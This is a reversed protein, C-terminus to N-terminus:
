LQLNGQPKYNSIREQQQMASKNNYITTESPTDGGSYAGLTPDISNLPLYILGKFLQQYSGLGIYNFAGKSDFTEKTDTGKLINWYNNIINDDTIEEFNNNGSLDTDKEFADSLATANLVGFPKYFQENINGQEDVFKPLNYNQYIKNIEDPTNAGSDKIEQRVLELLPLYDVGPAIIGKSYKDMDIPLYVKYISSTDVVINQSSAMDLTKNGMTVNSFDFIGGYVSDSAVKDLTTLGLNKGEKNVVPMRYAQISLADSTGANITLRTEVGMDRQFAVAPNIKSKDEIEKSSEKKSGDANLNEQLSTKFTNTINNRSSILQILLKEVGESTGDSKIKLLSKANEPLVSYIYNLAAYSQEAQSETILENKYLGDISLNSVDNYILNRQSADKLIDIGKLIQNNERTSYGETSNKTSGLNSIINSILDHINKMGISNSVVKVIASNNALEPDHARLNLLDSNTLPYYETNSKIQEPTLLKFDGNSNQCFILGRDNIAVENISENKNALEFANNYEEMNFNAIKIQSLIQMYQSEVSNLNFTGFQQDIKFEQLANTIAMIDSPLGKLKDILKMEDSDLLSTKTEEKNSINQQPTQSVNAITVPQYSVLPPIAVGGSQFKIIM